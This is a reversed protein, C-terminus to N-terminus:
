TVASVVHERIEDGDETISPAHLPCTSVRMLHSGDFGLGCIQTQAPAVFRRSRSAQMGRLEIINGRSTFFALSNGLFADRRGQEVILIYEDPELDFPGVPTGGDFGYRRVSGDRLQLVLKDVASGTTGSIRQVAMPLGPEPLREIYIGTLISGEFQLGTIQSGVPAILRSRTRADHGQLAIIQCESTYFVLSNGMYADRPEQAVALIVEDHHLRWSRHQFGGQGGYFLKRGSRLHMEVCDVANGVSGNIQRVVGKRCGEWYRYASSMRLPSSEGGSGASDILSATDMRCLDRGHSRPAHGSSRGGPTQESDSSSFVVGARKTRAVERALWKHRLCGAQDLRESPDVKLLGRVMDKADESVSEWAGKECIRKAQLHQVDIVGEIDFPFKGCLMIYLLVGFSWFDIREDYHGTLVEPALYDLTGCATMGSAQEGVRKLCKSLGFDAIKIDYFDSCEPEPGPYSRVILVNEPKLDRHIVKHGHMYAMGELLQFSVHQTSLESGLGKGVVLKSFLDGCKCFDMVIYCLSEHWFAELLNVIRPHHLERMVSIERRLSAVTREQLGIVQTNVIKVAYEHGTSLRTCRYVRGQSGGGLEKGLQFSDDQVGFRTGEDPFASRPPVM